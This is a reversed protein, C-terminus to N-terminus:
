KLTLTSLMTELIAQESPSTSRGRQMSVVIFNKNDPYPFALSVISGVSERPSKIVCREAQRGAFSITSSALLDGPTNCAANLLSVFFGLYTPPPLNCEDSVCNTSPLNRGQEMEPRHVAVAQLPYAPEGGPGTLGSNDTEQLRWTPRYKFSYGYKTNSYTKWTSTDVKPLNTVGDAFLGGKDAGPIVVRTPVPIPTGIPPRTLAPTGPFATRVEPIAIRTPTLTSVTALQSNDLPRREREAGLIIVAAFAATVAIAGAVKPAPLAGLLKM